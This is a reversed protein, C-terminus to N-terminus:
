QGAYGQYTIFNTPSVVLEDEASHNSIEPNDAIVERLKKAWENKVENLYEAYEPKSDGYDKMLDIINTIYEASNIGKLMNALNVATPENKSIYLYILVDKGSLAFTISAETNSLDDIDSM